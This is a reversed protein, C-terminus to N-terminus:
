GTSSGSSRRRSRAGRPARRRYEAAFAPDDRMAQELELASMADLEGDLLRRIVALSFGQRQLERIRALRAVHEVEASDLDLHHGQGAM